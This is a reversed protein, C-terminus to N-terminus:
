WRLARDLSSVGQGRVDRMPPHAADWAATAAEWDAATGLTLDSCQDQWSALDRAPWTETGILVVNHCTTGAPLGLNGNANGGYLAPGDAFFMSDVVSLEPPIGGTDPRPSWKFFGGHQGYGYKAPNFSEEFGQLRVLSRRVEVRAGPDPESGEDISSLFVHCGDLKVDDVLGAAMGDNEICDDHLYGGAYTDGGDTRVGIVKWNTAAGGFAIGDGQNVLRTGVIQPDPTLVTMGTIRHWTSWTTKEPDRDTTIFGGVFCLGDRSDDSEHFKVGTAFGAEDVVSDDFTRSRADVVTQHELRHDLGGPWTTTRDEAVVDLPRADDVLCAREAADRPTEGLTPMWAPVEGPGADPPPSVTTGPGQEQAPAPATRPTASAAPTSVGLGTALLTSAVALVRM